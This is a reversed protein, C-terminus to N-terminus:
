ANLFRAVKRALERGGVALANHGAGPVVEIPWREEWKPPRMRDYEGYIFLVPQKLEFPNEYERVQAVLSDFAGHVTADGARFHQKERGPTLRRAQDYGWDVVLYELPPIRRVVLPLGPINALLSALRWQKEPPRAGALVIKDVKEPYRKAFHTAIQAGMSFGVLHSQEINEADFVDKIQELIYDMSQTEPDDPAGGYGPLRPLLVTYHQTLEALFDEARDALLSWGHLVVVVQSGQGIKKYALM